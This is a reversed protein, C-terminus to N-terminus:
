IYMVQSILKDLILKKKNLYIGFSTAILDLPEEIFDIDEFANKGLFDFFIALISVHKTFEENFVSKSKSNKAGFYFKLM